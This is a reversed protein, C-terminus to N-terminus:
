RKRKAARRARAIAPSIDIHHAHQPRRSRRLEILDRVCLAIVATAYAFLMGPWQTTLFEVIASM